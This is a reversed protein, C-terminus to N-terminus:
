RGRYLRLPAQAAAWSAIREGSQPDMADPVVDLLPRVAFPRDRLRPHPVSLGPERVVEGDIWLIDLDITRPGWRQPDPRIRGLEREIALSQLLLDRPALATEVLVAANLYDPQEPGGAPPSEYLGSRALLTMDTSAELRAIARQITTARDGVNSGLGLVVRYPRNV